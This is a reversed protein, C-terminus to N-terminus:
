ADADDESGSLNEIPFDCMLRTSVDIVANVRHKVECIFTMLTRKDDPGDNNCWESYQPFTEGLGRWVDCMKLGKGHRLERITTDKLALDKRLKVILKKQEEVRRDVDAKCVVDLAAMASSSAM